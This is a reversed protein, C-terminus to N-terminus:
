WARIRVPPLTPPSRTWSKPPFRRFIPPALSKFKPDLRAAVARAFAEVRSAPLPWCHDAKTGTITPTSQVMYLRSMPPQPLPTEGAPSSRPWQGRSELSTPSVRRRAIFDRAYRLHGPGSALFDADLSLIREARDFRYYTNVDEDPALDLAMHAGRYAMGRATPEYQHWKARPYKKLLSQIQSALTPSTVTETLLRLGAGQKERQTAMGARIADLANDWSRIQGRYLVIQSRDPDYLSLVSAQAMADAAGLSAPHSQNGEIKTPRGEHSEVLLGVADGGLTMTTAFYLPQGPIIEEPARVYPVIMETPPQLGCGSLGALGLSAALLSLFRRRSLADHWLPGQEPYRRVFEELLRLSSLQGVGTPRIELGDPIGAASQFDAGRLPMDPRTTM